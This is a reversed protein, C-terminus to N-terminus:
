TNFFRIVAFLLVWFVASWTLAFGLGTIIDGHRDPAASREERELANAVMRPDLVQSATGTGSFWTEHHGTQLFRPRRM